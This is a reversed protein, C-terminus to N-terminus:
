EPQTCCRPRRNQEQRKMCGEKKRDTKREKCPFVLTESTDASSCAQSPFTPHRLLGPTRPAMEAGGRHASESQHRARMREWPSILEAAKEILEFSAGFCLASHAANFFLSLRSDARTWIPGRCLARNNSTLSAQASRLGPNGSKKSLPPQQLQRLSAAAICRAPSCHSRSTQRSGLKAKKKSM